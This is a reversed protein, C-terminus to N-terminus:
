AAEGAAALLRALRGGVEDRDALLGDVSADVVVGATALRLGAQLSALPMCRPPQGSAEAIRQALAHVEDRTWDAPHQLQWAAAGAPSGPVTRPLVAQALAFAHEVWAQRAPARQWRAHLEARLAPWGLGLLTGTRRQAHARRLTQWEAEAAALRAAAREREASLAAHVRLRADHRAQALLAASQAEATGAIRECQARRDSEVLDLLAQTRAALSM